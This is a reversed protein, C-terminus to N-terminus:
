EMDRRPLTISVPKWGDPFPFIWGKVIIMNVIQQVKGLRFNRLCLNRLKLSADYRCESLIIEIRGDFFSLFDHVLDWTAKSYHDEHGDEPNVCEWLYCNKPLYLPLDGLNQTVIM